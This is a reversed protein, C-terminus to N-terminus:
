VPPLSRRKVAVFGAVTLLCGTTLAAAGAMGWADMAWALGFGALASVALMVPRMRRLGTARPLVIVSLAIGAPIWWSWGGGPNPWAPVGVALAQM